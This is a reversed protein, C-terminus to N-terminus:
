ILIYILVYKNTYRLLWVIFLVEYTNIHICKLTFNYVNIYVLGLKFVNTHVYKLNM